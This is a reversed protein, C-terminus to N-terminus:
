LGFPMELKECLEDLVVRVKETEFDAEAIEISGTSGRATRIHVIFITARKGAPGFRQRKDVSLVDYKDSM